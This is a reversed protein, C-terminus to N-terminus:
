ARINPRAILPPPTFSQTLFFIDKRGGNHFVGHLRHSSSKLGAEINGRRFPPPAHLFSKKAIAEDITLIAPKKKIDFKVLRRALELAERTEAALICIPEDIHGIEKEVLLPQDQVITGWRTHHLDKATFCAKVGPVKLAETADIKLLDGHAVPSGVYGVHLEGQMPPIDDIFESRGRVHAIVNAPTKM